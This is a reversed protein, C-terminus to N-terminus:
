KEVCLGGEIKIVKNVQEGAHDMGLATFPIPTKQVCFDGDCFAEWIVSDTHQLADMEALYIPLIRTYKTRDMSRLGCFLEESAFDLEEIAIPPYIDVDKSDYKMYTLLM